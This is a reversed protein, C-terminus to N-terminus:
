TCHRWNPRSINMKFRRGPPTADRHEAAHEDGQKDGIVQRQQV